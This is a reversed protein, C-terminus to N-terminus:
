NRWFILWAVLLWLSLSGVTVLLLGRRTDRRKQEREADELTRDVLAKFQSTDDSDYM